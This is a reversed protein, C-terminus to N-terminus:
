QYLARCKETTIENFVYRCLGRLSEFAAWMEAEDEFSAPDILVETDLAFSWVDTKGDEINSWVVRTRADSEGDDLWYQVFTSSARLNGPNRPVFTFYEDVKLTDGGFSPIDIRDIYRLSIATVPANGIIDSYLAWHDKLKKMAEEFGPYNPLFNLTLGHNLYHAMFSRDVTTFRYGTMGSKLDSNATGDQAVSFQGLFARFEQHEPLVNGFREKVRTLFVKPDFEGPVAARINFLVEVAPAKSFKLETAPVSPLINM